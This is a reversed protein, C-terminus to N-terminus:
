LPLILSVMVLLNILAVLTMVISTMTMMTTKAMLAIAKNKGKVVNMTKIKM